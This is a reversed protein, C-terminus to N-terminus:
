RVPVVDPQGIAGRRLRQFGGYLVDHLARGKAAVQGCTRSLKPFVGKLPRINRALLQRMYLGRQRM